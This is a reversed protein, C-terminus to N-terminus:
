GGVGEIPLETHPRGPSLPPRPPSPVTPPRVPPRQRFTVRFSTSVCKISYSQVSVSSELETPNRYVSFNLILNVCSIIM